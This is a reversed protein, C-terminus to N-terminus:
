ETYNFSVYNCQFSEVVPLVVSKVVTGVKVNIRFWNYKLKLFSLGAAGQSSIIRWVNFQSLPGCGGQGGVGKRHHLSGDAQRSAPIRARHPPRTEKREQDGTLLDSCSKGPLLPYFAKLAPKGEKELSATSLMLSSLSSQGRLCSSYTNAELSHELLLTLPLM